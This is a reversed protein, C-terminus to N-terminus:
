KKSDVFRYCKSLNRRYYRPYGPSQLCGSPVDVICCNVDQKITNSQCKPMMKWLVSDTIRRFDNIGFNRCKYDNSHDFNPNLKEDTNYYTTPEKERTYTVDNDDPSRYFYYHYLTNHNNYYKNPYYDHIKNRNYEQLNKNDQPLFESQNEHTNVGSNHKNLQDNYYFLQPTKQLAEPSYKDPCEDQIIEAIFGLNNYGLIDNRYRIIKPNTGLSQDFKSILNLDTQCGCIMKGDIELFGNYCKGFNNNVGVLFYKLHIRLRCINPNARHIKFVCNTQTGMPFNPSSIYFRRMNYSSACCNSECELKTILIKFGKGSISNDTLFRLCLEGNKSQFVEYGTQTGCLALKDGIELRDKTCGYSNEVDFELFQFHFKNDCSKDSKLVFVCDQNPGYQQLYYDSQILFQKKNQITSGCYYVNQTKVLHLLVTIGVFVCKFIM